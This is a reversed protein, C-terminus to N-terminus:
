IKNRMTIKIAFPLQTDRALDSIPLEAKLFLSNAELTHKFSALASRTTAVGQIQVAVEGNDATQIYFRNLTIAQTADKQIADIITSFLIPQTMTSLQTALTNATRIDAEADTFTTNGANKESESKQTNIQSSTLVYTPILAVGLFVMVSTLLFLVSVMLRLRYELRLSAHGEPPILNIM